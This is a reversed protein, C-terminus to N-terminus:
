LFSFAAGTVVEPVANKALKSDVIKTSVACVATSTYYLSSLQGSLAM